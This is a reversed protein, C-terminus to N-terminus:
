LFFSLCLIHFMAGCFCLCVSRISAGKLFGFLLVWVDFVFWFIGMLFICFTNSTGVLPSVIAARTNETADISHRADMKPLKRWNCAVIEAAIRQVQGNASRLVGHIQEPTFPKICNSMEPRHSVQHSTLVSPVVVKQLLTAITTQRCIRITKKM